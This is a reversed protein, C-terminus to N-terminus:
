RSSAPGDVNFTSEGVGARVVIIDAQESSPNSERHIAGKPVYVFDGPGAELTGSGEPGFEMKLGGRLVYIVTEYDGHHHWGSVMGPETSVFGSWTRDSAFAQQRDMGPTVPGPTREAPTVLQVPEQQDGMVAGKVLTVLLSTTQRARRPPRPVMTESQISAIDPPVNRASCRGVIRRMAEYRRSM